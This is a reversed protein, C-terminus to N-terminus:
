SRALSINKNLYAKPIKLSFQKRVEEPPLFYGYYQRINTPIDLYDYLLENVQKILEEGNEAWTVVNDDTYNVIRAFDGGDAEEIFVKLTEPKKWELAFLEDESVRFFRFKIAKLLNKIM